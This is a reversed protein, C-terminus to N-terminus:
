SATPWDFMSFTATQVGTTDNTSSSGDSIWVATDANVSLFTANKTSNKVEVFSKAVPDYMQYSGNSQWILFGTGAQPAAATNNSSITTPQVKDGDDLSFALLTGHVSEDIQAPYLSTFRPLVPTISIPQPTAQTGTKSTPTPTDQTTVSADSTNLLFLTDNVVQPHFLVDESRFLHKDVVIDPHWAGHQRTTNQVTEQVWVNSHPQASLVDDTFWVESWFIKLGDTTATPSTLVHGGSTKAIFTSTTGKNADLQYRVLQSGGKADLSTVLLTNQQVFQLGQVPTTVWDPATTADFTGHQLVIPTALPQMGARVALSLANLRWTRTSATSYTSHPAQVKQTPQDFQLWIVWQSSAGLVFLPSRSGNALLPTSITNKTTGSVQEIMWQTDTEGYASYYIHERTAIASAVHPYSTAATYNVPAVLSPPLISATPNVAGHNALFLMSVLGGVLLVMLFSAALGLVAFQSVPTVRKKHRIQLVPLPGTEATSFAKLTESARTPAQEKMYPKLFDPVASASSAHATSSRQLFHAHEAALAQMLKSHSDPAPELVPLLRIHKYVSKQQALFDRCEGCQELHENIGISGDKGQHLERYAALM